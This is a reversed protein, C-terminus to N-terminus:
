SMVLHIGHVLFPTSNTACHRNGTAASTSGRELVQIQTAGAGVVRIRGRAWLKSGIPVVIDTTQTSTIFGAAANGTLTYINATVAHAANAPTWGEVGRFFGGNITLNTPKFSRRLGM